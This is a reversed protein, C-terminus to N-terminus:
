QKVRVFEIEPVAPELKIRLASITGDADALFSVRERGQTFTDYHWHKLDLKSGSRDLTLGAASTSVV